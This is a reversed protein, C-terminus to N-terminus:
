AGRRMRQGMARQASALAAASRVDADKASGVLKPGGDFRPLSARMAEPDVEWGAFRLFNLPFALFGVKGDDTQTPTVLANQGSHWSWLNVVPERRDGV